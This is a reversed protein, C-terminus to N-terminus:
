APAELPIGTATAWEDPGGTLVAVDHYGRRELVSAATAAREGHGCMTVVPGAPLQAGPLAGLEIHGAAPLHGSTYEGAQRVDIVRAPDVQGAELLPVTAVPQGAAAWAAVGGPLEGALHDYGIKRAQWVIEAPDQDDDRLFVLPNGPDPVLWGLWTAFVPRLTNSLSGPLHGAAYAAPPRVDVIEAGKARLALVQGVTLPPLVADTPLPAPGLRNVDGLRRFYAPYTGLSGVLRTVFADEDPAALLPNTVLEQGITSSRASGPPASCFSGAGHTPWVATAEPLAALRQLSVYQARALEETRDPDVLDTRAATGVILSGGTFVGVPRDGDLLLYSLHEDTHGPTGLARLSLGGLDVEDGDRLGRHRYAREGAASALLQAGGAALDVAGTVFDAHLHTDAAFAVAWGREQAAAHVARLDRSADVVLARGDGLGVMWTTNGLGDDVVPVLEPAM